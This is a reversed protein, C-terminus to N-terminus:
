SRGRELRLTTSLAVTPALAEAPWGVVDDLSEDNEGGVAVGDVLMDGEDACVDYALFSRGSCDLHQSLVPPNDHTARKRQGRPGCDRGIAM